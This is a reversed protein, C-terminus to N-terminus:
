RFSVSSSYWGSAVQVRVPETGHGSRSIYGRRWEKTQLVWHGLFFISHPPLLFPPNWRKLAWIRLDMHIIGCRRRITPHDGGYRKWMSSLRWHQSMSRGKRIELIRCYGWLTKSSFYLWVPLFYYELWGHVMIVKLVAMKQLYYLSCIFNRVIGATLSSLLVSTVGGLLIVNHPVSTSLHGLYYNIKWSM